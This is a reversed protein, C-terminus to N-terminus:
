SRKQQKKDSCPTTMMVLYTQMRRQITNKFHYDFGIYPFLWQMRDLYRGVTTESEYGHRAHYGLHWLTNVKWRTQGFMAEGDSGNSEIGVRAMFHFKRDDSFLQRQALKPNPIEPNPPSNEYSLVRGMGSMM